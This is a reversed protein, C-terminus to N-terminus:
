NNSYSIQLWDTGNWMLQIMDGATMTITGTLNTNSGAGDLIEFVQTGTENCEIFLLQGIDLGDSLVITRNSAVTNDSILRLYSSNGVTVAQDDVTIAVNGLDNLTIAGNVHLRTLPDTVGIGLDGDDQLVMRINNANNRWQYDATPSFNRFKMDGDFLINAYETSAASELRLHADFSAAIGKIHLGAQPTNINIGAKGSDDVYLTSVGNNQVDFDGTSSLNIVTNQIGNNLITFANSGQTLTRAGTLTGNSNYINNTTLTNANVWSANGSADSQMVLNAAAGTTMQFNTTTTKGGVTLKQGSVPSASIGTNGNKLITFANSRANFATGNGIVFVPDTTIWTTPSSTAISDNYQGIALSAYARATVSLGMVTAGFGSATTLNGMAMSNEGSAKTLNGMATAVFGSATTSNGMATSSNGSATTSNGMATTHFGSATTFVGTAMSNEGSAKTHSGMATSSEGSAISQTGMATSVVGSAISYAGMATSYGGTNARNWSTDSAVGVRFAAKDAYWMMRVGEGSVPPNGQTAPISTGGVFVVSSDAVHLMALPASTNIGVKGIQAFLHVSCLLFLSISLLYKM